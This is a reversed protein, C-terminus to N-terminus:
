FFGLLWGGVLLSILFCIFFFLAFKLIDGLTVVIGGQFKGSDEKLLLTRSEVNDATLTRSRLRMTSMRRCLSTAPIEPRQEFNTNTARLHSASSHNSFYPQVEYPFEESYGFDVDKNGLRAFDHSNEGMNSGYIGM